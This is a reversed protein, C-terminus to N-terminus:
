VSFDANKAQMLYFFGRISDFTGAAEQSKFNLSLHQILRAEPVSPSRQAVVM